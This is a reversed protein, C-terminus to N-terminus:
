YFNLVMENGAASGLDDKSLFHLPANTASFVVRDAARRALNTTMLLDNTSEAAATHATRHAHTRSAKPPPSECRM